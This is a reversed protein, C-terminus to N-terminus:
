IVVLFRSFRKIISDRISDIINKTNDLLSTPYEDSVIAGTGFDSEHTTAQVTSPHDYIGSDVELNKSVLLQTLSDVWHQRVSMSYLGFKVLIAASDFLLLRSWFHPFNLDPSLMSLLVESSKCPAHFSQSFLM